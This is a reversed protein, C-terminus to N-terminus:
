LIRKPLEGPITTMLESAGPEPLVGPAFATAFQDRLATRGEAAGVARHQGAVSDPGAPQDAARELAPPGVLLAGALLGVLLVREDRAATSGPLPRHEAHDDHTQADTM